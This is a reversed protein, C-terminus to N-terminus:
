WGRKRDNRDPFGGGSMKEMKRTRRCDPCRTPPTFGRESFFAQEGETFTFQCQCEKCVLTQEPM